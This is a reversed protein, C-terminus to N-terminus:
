ECCARHRKRGHGDDRVRQPKASEVRTAGYVQGIDDCGCWGGAAASGRPRGPDNECPTTMSTGNASVSPIRWTLLAVYRVYQAIARSREQVSTVPSPKESPFSPASLTM